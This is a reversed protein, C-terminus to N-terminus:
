GAASAHCVGLSIPTDNSSESTHNALLLEISANSRAVVFDVTLMGAPTTVSITGPTTATGSTCTGTGDTVNHVTGNANVEVTATVNGSSDFTAFGLVSVPQGDNALGILPSSGTIELSCIYNVPCATAPNSQAAAPLALALLTGVIAPLGFTKKM